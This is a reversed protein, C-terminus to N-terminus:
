VQNLDIEAMSDFHFNAKAVRERPGVGIVSMNARFAAEIGAASDEIVLCQKPDIGLKAAAILFLDPAPKAKTVECGDTISDFLETIGLKGIIMKCNRSSSAIALKLGRRKLDLILRNVGPLLDKGSLEEILELFYRNKRELLRIRESDTINRGKLFITLSDNRSLGLLKENDEATFDIKEEAALRQWSLFHYHVTDTIV